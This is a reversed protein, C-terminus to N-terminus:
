EIIGLFIISWNRDYQIHWHWRGIFSGQRYMALLPLSSLIWTREAVFELVREAQDMLWNMVAHNSHDHVLGVFQLYLQREVLPDIVPGLDVM